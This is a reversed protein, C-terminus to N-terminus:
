LQHPGGEHGAVSRDVAPSRGPVSAERQAADVIAIKMVFCVLSAPVHGFLLPNPNHFTTPRVHCLGFEKTSTSPGSIVIWDTPM